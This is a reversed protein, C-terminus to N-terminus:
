ADQKAKELQRDTQCISILVEYLMAEGVEDPKGWKSGAMSDIIGHIGFENLRGGGFAEPFISQLFKCCGSFWLKIAHKIHDPLRETILGRSEVSHDNLKVRIDGTDSETGPQYNEIGPRYLVAIFNNLLAPRKGKSKLYRLLLENAKLFERFRCNTLGDAPGYLIGKRMKLVPFLQNTMDCEKVLFLHHKAIDILECENLNRMGAPFKKKLFYVTCKKVWRETLLIKQEEDAEGINLQLYNKIAFVFENKTLDNWRSATELFTSPRDVPRLEIKNV